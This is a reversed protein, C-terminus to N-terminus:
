VYGVCRQLVKTCPFPGDIGNSNSPIYTSPIDDDENWVSINQRHRGPFKAGYWISHVRQLPGVRSFDEPSPNGPRECDMMVTLDRQDWMEDAILQLRFANVQYKKLHAVIKM